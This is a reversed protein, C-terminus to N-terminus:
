KNKWKKNYYDRGKEFWLNKYAADEYSDDSPSAHKLPLDISRVLLGGAEAQRVLDTEEWAWVYNEDFGGVSEFWERKVFFTAGCVWDNVGWHRLESQAKGFRCGTIVLSPNDEFQAEVQDIFRGQVVVDPNLFGIIPSSGKSAALNCGMSFGLNEVENSHLYFRFETELKLLSNVMEEAQLKNKKNHVVTVIDIM